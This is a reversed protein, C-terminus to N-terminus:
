KVRSLTHADIEVGKLSQLSLPALNTVDITVNNSISFVESSLSLFMRHNITLKQKNAVVTKLTEFKTENGDKPIRVTILKFQNGMAISQICFFLFFKKEEVHHRVELTRFTADTKIFNGDSALDIDLSLEIIKKDLDRSKFLIHMHGNEFLFENEPSLLQLFYQSSPISAELNEGKKNKYKLTYVADKYICSICSYVKGDVFFDKIIEVIKIPTSTTEIKGDNLKTAVKNGGLYSTAVIGNKKM